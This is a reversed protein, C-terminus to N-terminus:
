LLLFFFRAPFSNGLESFLFCLRDGRENHRRFSPFDLMSFNDNAVCTAGYRM